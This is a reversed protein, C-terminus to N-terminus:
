FQFYIFEQATFHGFVLIGFFLAYDGAWRTWAPWSAFKEPHRHMWEIVNCLPIMLLSFALIVSANKRVLRPLM